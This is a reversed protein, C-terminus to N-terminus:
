QRKELRRVALRYLFLVTVAFIVFIALPPLYVFMRTQTVAPNDGLGILYKVKYIGPWQPLALKDSVLRVTGPLIMSENITQESVKQGFLNQVESTYRSHYHTTGSNRLVTSWQSNDIVLWPSSLSVLSGARTL